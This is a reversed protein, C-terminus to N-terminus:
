KLIDVHQLLCWMQSKQCTTEEVSPIIFCIPLMNEYTAGLKCSTLWVRRQLLYIRELTVCRWLLQRWCVVSHEAHLADRPLRYHQISTVSMFWDDFYSQRNKKEKEKREGIQWKQCYNTVYNCFSFWPLTDRTKWGSMASVTIEHFHVDMSLVYTVQFLLEKAVSLVGM